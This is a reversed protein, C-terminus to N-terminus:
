SATVAQVAARHQPLVSRYTDLWADRTAEWTYAACAARAARALRVGLDADALLRLVCDAVAEHDGAPALLGEVGDELMAPVGGVRTSVAPTGSAYAELLSLPMNDLDPTQVYIDATDYVDPMRDPPVAGLFTVGRLGLRAALAELASRESGTGALILSADPFRAQVRQFARLTCAVNYHPEFSRTSLLRPALPRRERYRFRSGDIVNPIVRSPIDFGEFVEVLYRSPVINADVTRLTRRALASRRLHDPAEGSHYNLVVPKGLARAVRVAPWPALVFSVYSASFVHVVDARRLERVLSPWYLWQTVLTRVYKIRQLRGLVGHARPNIPVLWAEVDPDGRWGALLRDAQVAQGGLIGLTPAVIAVKLRPTISGRM